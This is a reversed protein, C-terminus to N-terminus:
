IFKDNEVHQVTHSERERGCLDAIKDKSLFVRVEQGQLLDDIFQRIGSHDGGLRDAVPGVQGDSGLALFSQIEELVADTIGDLLFNVAIKLFVLEGQAVFDRHQPIIIFGGGTFVLSM